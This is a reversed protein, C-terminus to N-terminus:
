SVIAWSEPAPFPELGRIAARIASVGNETANLSFWRRGGPPMPGALNKAPVFHLSPAAPGRHELRYYPLRPPERQVAGAYLTVMLDDEEITVCGSAGCVRALTLGKAAAASALGLAAALAIALATAKM